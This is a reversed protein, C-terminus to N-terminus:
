TFAAEARDTLARLLKWAAENSTRGIYEMRYGDPLTVALWYTGDSCRQGQLHATGCDPGCGCMRQEHLRDLLRDVDPFRPDAPPQPLQEGDLYVAM